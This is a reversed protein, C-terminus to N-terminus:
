LNLLFDIKVTDKVATKWSEKLSRSTRRAGAGIDDLIKLLTSCHKEYEENTEFSDMTSVFADMMKDFDRTNRVGKTIIDEEFLKDALDTMDDEVNLRLTHWMKRLEKAITQTLKEM